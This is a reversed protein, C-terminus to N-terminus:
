SATKPATRLSSTAEVKAEWHVLGEWCSYGGLVAAHEAAAHEAAAAAPADATAPAAVPVAALKAVFITVPAALAKASNQLRKLCLIALVSEVDLPQDLAVTTPEPRDVFVKFPVTKM